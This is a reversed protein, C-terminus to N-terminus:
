ATHLSGTIRVGLASEQSTLLVTNGELRQKASVLHSVSLFFCPSNRWRRHMGHKCAAFSEDFVFESDKISLTDLPAFLFM